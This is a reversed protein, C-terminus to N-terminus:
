RASRVAAAHRASSRRRAASGSSTVRARHPDRQKDHWDQRRIVLWLPIGAMLGFALVMLPVNMWLVASM